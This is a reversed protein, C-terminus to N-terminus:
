RQRAHQELRDIADILGQLDDSAQRSFSHAVGIWYAAEKDPADGARLRNIIAQADGYAARVMMIAEGLRVISAHDM